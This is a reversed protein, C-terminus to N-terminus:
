DAVRPPGATITIERGAALGLRVTTGAPVQTAAHFAYLDGRVDEGDVSVIEDGPELGADAAPGGARVSAVVPAFPEFREAPPPERLEFGLDGAREDEALRSRRAELTLEATDGAGVEVIRSSMEYRVATTGFAYTFVRVRGAPVDEIRFRGDEDTVRERDESWGIRSGALPVFGTMLGAVPEGSDADVVRGSIVGRGALEIVVGSREQGAALAVEVTSTGAGASATIDFSGAPLDGLSWAGGTRYFSERRRFGTEPDAAMIQFFSPAAGGDARVQGAIRGTAPITLTVTSGAAVGEALAEGGGRRYARLTYRGPALDALSFAGDTDTMAPKRDWNWRVQRRARAASAGPGDPERAADVFADTVPAGAADVVRGAITATRREIVLEVQATKGAEVRVLKGAEADRRQGPARLAQWADDVAFVRQKGPEVGELEFRGDEGSRVSEDWYGQRSDVSAARVRVDAVPQGRDDVVRGAITGGSPVTLDVTVEGEAPVEVTVPEALSPHRASHLQVDARGSALGRAEYRGDADTEVWAQPKRARPDSDRRASVRVNIGAVPAGAQDSVTGVVAGGASVRWVLGTVDESGVEVAPYEAASLHDDCYVDVEYSGPLLAEFEVAGDEIEAGQVDDDSRLRVSGGPCPTGEGEGVLVRGSLMAEPFVEIRIDEATEGLGLLVAERARGYGGAIHASPKYRGPALRTIRFRGDDGSFATRYTGSRSLESAVVRARAIPEGSDADVVIGAVVSEPTLFIEARAGPAHIEDHGGAYGEAAALLTHGGRALWLSFEGRADSEAAPAMLPPVGFVRGPVSTVTAGAVPGGGIDLVVGRVEVGGPTLVFDVGDRREGAALELFDDMGEAGDWAAPAFRPAGAVPRYRAPVLPALQYRGSADSTACSPARVDETGLEDSSPQACVRAGAIPDGDRSRVTGTLRAAELTAPDVRPRDRPGTAAGPAATAAAESGESGGSGAGRWWLGVVVLLLLVVGAGGAAM